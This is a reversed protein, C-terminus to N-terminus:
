PLRTMRGTLDCTSRDRRRPKGGGEAGPFAPIKAEIEKWSKKDEDFDKDWEKWQALAPLACGALAVLLVVHNVRM